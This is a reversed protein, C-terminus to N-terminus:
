RRRIRRALLAIGTALGLLVLIGGVATAPGPLQTMAVGGVLVTLAVVPAPSEYYVWMSIGLPGFFVLAFGAPGMADAFTCYVTDWFANQSLAEFMSSYDSCAM